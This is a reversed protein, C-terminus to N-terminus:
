ARYSSGCAIKFLARYGVSEVFPLPDSSIGFRERLVSRIEQVRKEFNPWREGAEAPNRITGHLEAIRRLARWARNPNDTRRDQFGFEAYNRTESNKGFHIQVREDSLFLIEIDEWNMGSAPPEVSPAEPKPVRSTKNSESPVVQGQPAPISASTSGIVPENSESPKQEQLKNAPAEPPLTAVIPTARLKDAQYGAMAAIAQNIRPPLHHLRDYWTELIKNRITLCCDKQGVKLRNRKEPASGVACLLLESLVSTKYGFENVTVERMIFPEIHYAWIARDFESSTEKGKSVYADRGVAFVRELWSEARQQIIEKLQWPVPYEEWYDRLSLDTSIEKNIEKVLTFTMQQVRFRISEWIAIDYNVQPTM